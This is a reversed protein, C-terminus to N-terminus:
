KTKSRPYRYGNSASAIPRARAMRDRTSISTLRMHPTPARVSCPASTACAAARLGHLLHFAASTTVAADAIQITRGDATAITAIDVANGFAHESLKASIGGNRGRCKYGPGTSTRALSANMQAFVVASASDSLWLAFQRAFRCNLTPRDPLM